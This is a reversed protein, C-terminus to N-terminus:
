NPFLKTSSTVDIDRGERDLCVQRLKEFVWRDSRISSRAQHISGFMSRLIKGGVEHFQLVAVRCRPASSEMRKGRFEVASM